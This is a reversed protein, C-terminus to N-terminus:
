HNALFELVNQNFFEPNELQPFHGSSPVALVENHPIIESLLDVAERMFEPDTTGKVLLVPVSIEHPDNENLIPPRAEFEGITKSNERMMEQVFEPFQGLAGERNQLGNVFSELAGDFNGQHYEALVPVLTDGIFHVASLATDPHRILISTLGTLSREDTVSLLPLGPEVIVLARVLEPNKIAYNVAIVGGYSHGIVTAPSAGLENVLGLLDKTNNEITSESYDAGNENPQSMRRSYAIVRHGKSFPDIQETWARYDEAIGHVFVIPPGQGAEVYALSIGGVNVSLLARL